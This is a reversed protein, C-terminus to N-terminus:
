ESWCRLSSSFYNARLLGTMTIPVTVSISVAANMWAGSFLGLGVMASAWPMGNISREPGMSSRTLSIPPAHPSHPNKWTM